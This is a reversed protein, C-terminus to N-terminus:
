YACSNFKSFFKKLVIEIFDPKFFSDTSLFAKHIYTFHFELENYLGLENIITRTQLFSYTEEGLSHTIRTNYIDVVHIASTPVYNDM